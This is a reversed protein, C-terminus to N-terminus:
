GRKEKLHSLITDDLINSVLEDHQMLQPKSLHAYRKVNRGIGLQRVIFHIDDYGALTAAIIIVKGRLLM